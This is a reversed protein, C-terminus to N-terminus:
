RMEARRKEELLFECIRQYDEKRDNRISENSSPKQCIM